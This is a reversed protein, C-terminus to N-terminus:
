SYRFYTESNQQLSYQKCWIYGEFNMMAQFSDITICNEPLREIISNNTYVTIHVFESRMMEAFVNEHGNFVIIRQM